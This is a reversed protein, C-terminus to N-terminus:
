SQIHMYKEIISSAYGVTEREILKTDFCINVKKDNNNDGGKIRQVLLDVSASGMEYILQHVSTLSPTIYSAQDIDDYGIVSIDGPIKFNTEKLARMVGFAILDNACMVATPINGRKIIDLMAAYGGYWNYNTSRILSEDVVIGRKELADKYTKLRNKSSQSEVAGCIYAIKEHGYQFFLKMAKEVGARDNSEIIDFKDKLSINSDVLVLKCDTAIELLRKTPLQSKVIVIGDVSKSILAEVYSLEKDPNTDSNCQFLSMGNKYASDEAGRTFEPYFPNSINPIILGISKTKGTKLMRWAYNPKYGIRQAAERVKLVNEPKISEKGNFVASVTGVSVHAEKAVDKITAM